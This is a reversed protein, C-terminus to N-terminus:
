RRSANVEALLRLVEDSRYRRHGGVTRISSLKGALAWNTVTRETVSFLRAVEASGLLRYPGAPGGGGVAAAAGAAEGARAQLPVLSNFRRVLAAVARGDLDRARRKWRDFVAVIAPADAPGALSLGYAWRLSLPADVLPSGPLAAKLDSV